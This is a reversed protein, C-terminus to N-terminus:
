FFSIVALDCRAMQVWTLNTRYRMIPTGHVLDSGWPHGPILIFLPSLPVPCVVSYDTCSKWLSAIGSTETEKSESSGEITTLIETLLPKRLVGSGVMDDSQDWGLSTFKRVDVFATRLILDKVWSGLPKLSPYATNSWLSPVQNNLFSNYVKEMEESMVVLGAIAKNLTDLSTQFFLFPNTGKVSTKILHPHGENM